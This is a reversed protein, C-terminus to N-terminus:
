LKEEAVYPSAFLNLQGCSFGRLFLFWKEMYWDMIQFCMGCAYESYDELYGRFGTDWIGGPNWHVGINRALAEKTSFTNFSMNNRRKAFAASFYQLALASMSQRLSLMVEEELSRLGAELTPLVKTLSSSLSEKYWLQSMKKQIFMLRAHNTVVLKEADGVMFHVTEYYFDKVAKKGAELEIKYGEGPVYVIRGNNDLLEVLPVQTYRQSWKQKFERFKLRMEQKLERFEEICEKQTDPAESIYEKAHIAQEGESLQLHEKLAVAYAPDIHSCLYDSVGKRDPVGGLGLLSRGTMRRFARRFSEDM